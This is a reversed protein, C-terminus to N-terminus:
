GPALRRHGRCHGDPEIGLRRLHPRQRQHRETGAGRTPDANTRRRDNKVNEEHFGILSRSDPRCPPSDPPLAMVIADTSRSLPLAISVTVPSVVTYSATRRSPSFLIPASGTSSDPRIAPMM